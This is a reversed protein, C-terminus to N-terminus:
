ISLENNKNRDDDYRILDSRVLAWHEAGLLSWVEISEGNSDTYKEVRKDLYVRMPQELRGCEGISILYVFFQTASKQSDRDLMALNTIADLSKCTSIIVGMIPNSPLLDNNEETQALTDTYSICLLFVVMLSITLLRKLTQSM